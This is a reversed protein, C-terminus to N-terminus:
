NSNKIASLKASTHYNEGIEENDNGRKEEHFEHRPKRVLVNHVAEQPVEVFIMVLLLRSEKLLVVEEEENKRNGTPQESHETHHMAVIPLQGYTNADEYIPKAVEEYVIHENMLPELPETARLM